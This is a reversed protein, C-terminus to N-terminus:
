GRIEVLKVSTVRAITEVFSGSCKCDQWATVEVAHDGLADGPLQMEDLGRDIHSRHDVRINLGAREYARNVHQKWDIRIARINAPTAAIGAIKKWTEVIQKTAFDKRRRTMERTNAIDAFGDRGLERHVLLVRHSLLVHAHKNLFDDAEHIAVDAAEGYKEVFGRMFNALLERRLGEM